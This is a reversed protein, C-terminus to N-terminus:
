QKWFRFIPFGRFFEQAKADMKYYYFEATQICDLLLNAGFRIAYERNKDEYKTEEAISVLEAKEGETFSRKRKVVQLQNLKAITLNEDHAIEDLLFTAFDMANELIDKRTDNSEDYARVIELFVTNADEFCYPEDSYYRFSEKIAEYDVNRIELFNKATFSYYKSIPKKIDGDKRFLEFSTDRFFDSIIYTGPKGTPNFVLPIKTGFFELLILQPINDKLGSVPKGDLLSDCLRMTNLRDEASMKSLDCNKDLRLEDFLASVRNCYDINNQLIEKRDVSFICGVSTLDIEENGINFAKNECISILFPLDVLADKLVATPSFSIHMKHEKDDFSIRMSKGIAIETKEKSKIRVFSTYYSVGNVSVTSDIKEIIQTKVPLVELPQLVSLGKVKAYLYIDDQLMIERIDSFQNGYKTVSINVSELLGRHALEEESLLEVTTFSAQKQMNNFFNLLITTKEANEDPFRQLEIAKSKQGKNDALLIRLKIPLLASYYIQKKNGSKDIYVVFFMVGGNHLYNNLHSTKVSYKIIQDDQRNNTKGKIQVPIRKINETKKREDDYIYIHGDWVPEKDGENIFPSMTDTKSISDIVASTALKEIDM